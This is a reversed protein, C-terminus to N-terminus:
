SESAPINLSTRSTRLGRKMEQITEENQEPQINIEKKQHLNNTQAGTAKRESHMAQVKENVKHGYEVM